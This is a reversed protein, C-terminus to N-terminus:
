IENFKILSNLNVKEWTTINHADNLKEFKNFYDGVFSNPVWPLLPKFYDKNLEFKKKTKKSKHSFSYEKQYIAKNLKSRNRGQIRRMTSEKILQEEESLELRKNFDNVFATIEKIRDNEM